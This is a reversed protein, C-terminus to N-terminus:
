TWSLWIPKVSSIIELGTLGNEAEGVVKYSPNIKNILEVIGERVRDEDEVVVIRM